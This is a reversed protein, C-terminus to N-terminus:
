TLLRAAPLKRDPTQRGNGLPAQAAGKLTYDTCEDIPFDAWLTGTDVPGLLPTGTKSYVAFALNVIEAYHNPGVDGDADPPNVGGRERRGCRAPM